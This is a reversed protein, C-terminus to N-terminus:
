SNAIIKIYKEARTKYDDYHHLQKKGVDVLHKKRNEDNALRYISEGIKEPSIPDFYEAAEGCLGRAFSLDSTLIPVEMKMAEPYSASFCELLTPLFMFDAQQYLYPCQSVDVKGIYAINDKYKEEVNLKNDSLTVVFRFKFYPYKERLYKIVLPIINLNKHPYNTAITLLTIGEFKPLTIDKKWDDHTDFVQNYFNTVTHIKKDYFMTSLKDSIDKNEAVFISSTRKFNNKILFMRMKIKLLDIVSLKKWFSSNTYILHPRAFGCVHRVKPKWISPGFVTFVIEINNVSVVEDLFVDRCTMMKIISNKINYHYCTVHSLESLKDNLYWLADSLVVYFTHEPFRDLQSIFSDAVQVGGGVKLNSTNILINM